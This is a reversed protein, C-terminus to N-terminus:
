PRAKDQLSALLQEESRLAKEKERLELRQEAPAGCRLNAGGDEAEEAGVVGDGGGDSRREGGEWRQVLRQLLECRRSEM